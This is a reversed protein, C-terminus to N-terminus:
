RRSYVYLLLAIMPFQYLVFLAGFAVFEPRGLTSAAVLAAAGVNRVAFEMAFTYRDIAPLGALAGVGWGISTAVGTFVLTLIASDLRLRWVAEWQDFVILALLLVLLILSLNREWPAYREVFTPVRNRLLMGVAIPLLLFLFLRRSLEDVPVVLERTSAVAPYITALVLPLVAFSLISSLATLTVSLPVNLRGLHCYFNSLAGGPCAAVLLLGAALEPVPDTLFVIVLAGLPLLLIQSLTGGVLVAPSRVVSVFQNVRLGLGVVVMLLVVIAPIFISVIM